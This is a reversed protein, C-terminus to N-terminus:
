SGSAALLRVVNSREPRTGIIEELRNSWADLAARKEADYSHRDYVATIGPEAHNLIKSVVLRSIGLSTM